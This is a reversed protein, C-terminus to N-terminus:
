RSREGPFWKWLFLGVIADSDAVAALAAKLCRKQILEGAPAPPAGRRRGDEWPRLATTPSREYGLETLLVPRDHGHSFVTLEEVVRAWAADLVAPEPAQDEAVLPFYAQVGIAHLAAWFPVKQYSDCNAAYTLPANTQERVSNTIGRSRAAHHVTRDLETGM